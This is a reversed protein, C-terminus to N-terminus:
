LEIRWKKKSAMGVVSLLSLGNFKMTFNCHFEDDETFQKGQLQETIEEAKAPLIKKVAEELLDQIFLRVLKRQKRKLKVEYLERNKVM